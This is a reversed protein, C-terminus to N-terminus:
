QYILCNAVFERVSHNLGKWFFCRRVCSLTRYYGAHGGARSSHLEELVQQRLKSDPGLCFWNRFFLIEGKVKYESDLDGSELKWVQDRIWPDSQNEQHMLNAWNTQFSSALVTLQTSEERENESLQSLADAM